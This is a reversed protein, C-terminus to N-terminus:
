GATGPVLVRCERSAARALRRDLTVLPVDLQAALAVYASGYVTLGRRLRFADTAVAACPWLQVDLNLLDGHALVASDAALRGSLGLRRLVDAVDFPLLEPAALGKGTLVATVAQGGGGSDTLATVLASADVVVASV